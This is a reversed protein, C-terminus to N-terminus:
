VDSYIASSRSSLIVKVLKRSFRSSLSFMCGKTMFKIKYELVMKSISMTTELKKAAQRGTRRKM